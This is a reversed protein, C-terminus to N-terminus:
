ALLKEAAADIGSSKEKLMGRLEAEISKFRDSDMASYNYDIFKQRLQNFWLRAEDKAKFSFKAGLVTIILDYVYKQRQPSAAQDVDDFSNQQVYVSDLFDGKL